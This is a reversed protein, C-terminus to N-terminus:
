STTQSLIAGCFAPLPVMQTLLYISADLFIQNDLTWKVAATYWQGQLVDWAEYGAVDEIPEGCHRWLVTAFMARTMGQEPAFRNNGTGIMLHNSTVYDLADQYWADEPVDEFQLKDAAFVGPVTMSCLLLLVVLRRVFRKM